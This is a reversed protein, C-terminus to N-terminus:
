FYKENFTREKEYQAYNISHKRRVFFNFLDNKNTERLFYRKFFYNTKNIVYVYSFIIFILIYYILVGLVSVLQDSSGGTNSVLGRKLGIILKIDIKKKKKGNQILSGGLKVIM